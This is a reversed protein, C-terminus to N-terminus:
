GRDCKCIEVDVGSNEFVDKIIKYVDSWKAGGRVSGIGFPMAVTAGISKAKECIDLMAKKMAKLDTQQKGMGFDKQGFLNVIYQYEKDYAEVKENKMTDAMILAWSETPIYQSTGLPELKNKKCYKLYKLYEVEVHSYLEKVQLAVGSAMTSQCNVQHILFNAKSKFLDKEIINIM